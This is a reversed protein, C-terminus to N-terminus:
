RYRIEGDRAARDRGVRLFFRILWVACALSGVAGAALALNLNGIMIGTPLCTAFFAIMSAIVVACTVVMTAVFTEMQEGFGMPRGELRRRSALFPTRIAAPALLVITGVGLTIDARFAALAVAILAILVLVTGIRFTRPPAIPTTPPEYFNESRRPPIRIPVKPKLDPGAFRHGCGACVEAGAPNLAGCGICAFQVDDPETM